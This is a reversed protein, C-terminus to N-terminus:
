NTVIRLWHKIREAHTAGVMVQKTFAIRPYGFVELRKRLEAERHKQSAIKRVDFDIMAFNIKEFEGSDLLDDLIDCEAGECNLKLFVIDKRDIHKKFWGSAKQFKCLESEDTRGNDKKWIGAGKSGPQYVPQECTRNWLGFREISVRADAIVDLNEWCAPVPEFCYIRDFCFEPDLAAALSQGTNAGVDLFIRRSM